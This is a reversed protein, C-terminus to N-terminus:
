LRMYASDEGSHISKIMEYLGTFNRMAPRCHHGILLGNQDGCADIVFPFTQVHRDLIKVLRGQGKLSKKGWTMIQKNWRSLTVDDKTFTHLTLICVTNAGFQMKRKSLWIIMSQDGGVRNRNEKATGFHRGAASVAALYYSVTASCKRRTLWRHRLHNPLLRSLPM